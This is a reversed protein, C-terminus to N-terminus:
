AIGHFQSRNTDRWDHSVSIRFESYGLWGELALRDKAQPNYLWFDMLLVDEMDLSLTFTFPLFSYTLLPSFYPCTPFKLAQSKQGHHLWSSLIFQSRKILAKKWLYPWKLIDSRWSLVSVRLVPNGPTIIAGQALRGLLRSWPCAYGCAFRREKDNLINNWFLGSKRM